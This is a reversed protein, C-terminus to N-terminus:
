FHVLEGSFLDKSVARRHAWASGPSCSRSGSAKNKKTISRLLEVVGGGEHQQEIVNTM